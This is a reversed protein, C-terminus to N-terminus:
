VAEEIMDEFRCNEIDEFLRETKALVSNVDVNGLVLGEILSQIEELSQALEKPMLSPISAHCLDDLFPTRVGEAKLIRLGVIGHAVKWETNLRLTKATLSEMDLM